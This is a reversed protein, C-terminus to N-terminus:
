PTLVYKQKANINSQKVNKERDLETFAYIKFWEDCSKRQLLLLKFFVGGM